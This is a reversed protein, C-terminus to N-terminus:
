FKVLHVLDTDYLLIHLKLKVLLCNEEIYKRISSSKRAVHLDFTPHQLYQHRM